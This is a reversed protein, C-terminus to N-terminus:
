DNDDDEDEDDEYDDDGDDDDNDDGDEDEDDEDDDDDDDDDDDIIKPLPAIREIKDMDKTDIIRELDLGEGQSLRVLEEISLGALDGIKLEPDLVMLNRIFTMMSVSVGFEDAYQEIASTEDLRQTLVIPEITKKRLYQHIAQDLIEKKEEAKEVDRNYVSLLLFEKENDIYGQELMKELIEESVLLVSKDKYSLGEIISQGDSNGAELSIVKDRSNTEITISPNVDLYIRSDLRNPVIQWNIFVAFFIAAISAYAVIRKFTSLPSKQATIEDHRLMKTRPKAKIEELLDIPAKEISNKISQLIEHDKM